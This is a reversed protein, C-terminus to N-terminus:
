LERLSIFHISAAQLFFPRDEQWVKKGTKYAYHWRVNGLHPPNASKVYLSFSDGGARGLVATKPHIVYPLVAIM